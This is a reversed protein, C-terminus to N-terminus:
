DAPFPIVSVAVFGLVVFILPALLLFCIVAYHKKYREKLLLKLGGNLLLWSLVFIPIYLLLFFVAM